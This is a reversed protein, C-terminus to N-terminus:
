NFLNPQGNQHSRSKQHGANLYTLLCCLLCLTQTLCFHILNFQVPHCLPSSCHFYRHMSLQTDAPIVDRWPSATGGHHLHSPSHSHPVLLLVAPVKSLIQIHAARPIGTSLLLVGRCHSCSSKYSQFLDARPQLLWLLPLKLVSLLMPSLKIWLLSKKHVQDRFAVFVVQSWDVQSWVFWSHLPVASFLIQSGHANVKLSYKADGQKFQLHTRPLLLYWVSLHRQPTGPIDSGSETPAAEHAGGPLAAGACGGLWYCM